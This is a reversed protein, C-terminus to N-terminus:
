RDREDGCDPCFCWETRLLRRCNPCEEPRASRRTRWRLVQWVMGAALSMGALSWGPIGLRAFTGVTCRGCCLSWTNYLIVALATAVVLLV